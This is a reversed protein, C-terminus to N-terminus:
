GQALPRELLGGATREKEVLDTLETELQLRAEQTGDLRTRKSAAAPRLLPVAARAAPPPRVAREGGPAPPPPTAAHARGSGGRGWRGSSMTNRASTNRTACPPYQRPAPAARRSWSCGQGPLTRSSRRAISRAMATAGPGTSSSAANPSTTGDDGLPATTVDS